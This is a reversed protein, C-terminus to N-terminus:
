RLGTIRTRAEALARHIEELASRSQAAEDVEAAAAVLQEALRDREGHAASAEARADDREKARLELEASLRGM